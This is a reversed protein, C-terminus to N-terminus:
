CLGQISSAQTQIECVCSLFCSSLWLDLLYHYLVSFFFLLISITSVSLDIESIAPILILSVSHFNHHPMLLSKLNMFLGNMSYFTTLFIFKTLQVLLLLAIIPKLERHIPNLIESQDIKSGVLLWKLLM